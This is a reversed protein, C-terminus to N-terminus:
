NSKILYISCIHEAKEVASFYCTDTFPFTCPPGHARLPCADARRSGQTKKAWPAMPSGGLPETQQPPHCQPNMAPYLAQETDTRQEKSYNKYLVSETRSEWVGLHPHPPSTIRPEILSCASYNMLLLGALPM